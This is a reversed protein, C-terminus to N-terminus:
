IEVNFKKILIKSEETSLRESQVLLSAISDYLEKDSIKSEALQAYLKKAEKDAFDSHGVIAPLSNLVTFRMYRTKINSSDKNIAEDMLDLGDNLYSLKSFPWFAYKGKLAETIGRYSLLLPLKNFEDMNSLSDIYNELADLGSENHSAEFLLSDLVVFENKEYDSAVATNSFIYVLCIILLYRM